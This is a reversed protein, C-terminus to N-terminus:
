QTNMVSFLVRPSGGNGFHVHDCEDFHVQGQLNDVKENWGCLCVDYARQDVQKLLLLVETVHFPLHRCVVLLNHFSPSSLVQKTYTVDESSLASAM